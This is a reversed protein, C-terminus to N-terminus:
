ANANEQESAKKEADIRAKVRQWVRDFARQTSIPFDSRSIWEHYSRDEYLADEALRGKYKGFNIVERGKDDYVMRAMFDVANNMASFKSLSEVDTGLDPYRELQSLLVEFTASTDAQASHADDLNRGCYFKYAASLTRPEKKHYINQVDILKVGSFDFDIGARHFEQDLLPLDFRTSNFGAIDCGDIFKVLKPAIKDFTPESAVMEDTIHHVATAEPPIPMGPNVRRSHQVKSGDTNVKIISIEVIRDHTVSTGTTELDFIIMPRKLILKM